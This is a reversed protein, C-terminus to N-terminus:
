AVRCSEGMDYGTIAERGAFATMSQQACAGCKRLGHTRGRVNSDNRGKAEQLYM